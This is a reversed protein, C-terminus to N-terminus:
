QEGAFLMAGGWCLRLGAGALARKVIEAAYSVPRSFRASAPKRRGTDAM